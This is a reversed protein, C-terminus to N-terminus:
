QQGKLTGKPVGHGIPDVRSRRRAEIKVSIDSSGLAPLCVCTLACFQVLLPLRKPRTYRLDAPSL